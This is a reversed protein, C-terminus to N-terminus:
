NIVEQTTTIKLIVQPRNRWYENESNTYKIEIVERAEAESNFDESHYMGWNADAIRFFVTTRNKHFDNTNTM